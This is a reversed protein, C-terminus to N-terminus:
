SKCQMLSVIKKTWGKFFYYFTLIKKIAMTYYLTFHIVFYIINHCIIVISNMKHHGSFIESIFIIETIPKGLLFNKLEQNEEIRM